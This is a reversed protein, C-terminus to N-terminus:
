RRAPEELTRKLNKMNEREQRKMILMFVPFALRMWGNPRADFRAVLRTGTPHPALTVAFKVSVPGGNTYAWSHPRDFAVCEVEIRKSQKWKALYRTGIGVPGDTLKAMSVVGPNWELESRLDVLYDFVDEIDREIVTSSEIVAMTDERSGM